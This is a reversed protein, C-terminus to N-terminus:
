FGQTYKEKYWGETKIDVDKNFFYDIPVGYLISFHYLEKTTTPHKGNEKNYLTQHSLPIDNHNLGNNFLAQIAQSVSLGKLTRAEILKEHNFGQM